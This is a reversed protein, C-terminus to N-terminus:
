CRGDAMRSWYGREACLYARRSGCGLTSKSQIPWVFLPLGVMVAALVALVFTSPEPVANTSGGGSQLLNILAQLDANNMKGDGNIDGLLLLQQPNLNSPTLGYLTEYNTFNTLALMMASIDATDVHGDRNFDGAYYTTAVSITGSTNLQSSDWVIRGGLTPLQVDSFNGFRSNWDLLDFSNGKAPRFDNVLSVALIGSESLTGTVNLKSNASPAAGGLQLAIGGQAFSSAELAVGAAITTTGSGSISGATSNANIVFSANNIVATGSLLAGISGIALTGASITTGGSYSNTGTFTETGSGTKVIALHAGMDDSISGSFTGGGGAIGLTAITQGGFAGFYGGTFIGSGTLADVQMTGTPGGEVADFTAGGAINLSAQNNAWIGQYSSTGTLTGGEVDILAGASFDVNITGQGGFVLIGAGTKRFTGTGTYTMTPQTLTGSDNYELVAGSSVSATSGPLALNPVQLDGGTVMTGGTYSNAASLVLTGPGAKTISSASSEAISGAITETNGMSVTFTTNGGMLFLAGGAASGNGGIGGVASGGGLGGTLSGADTTSDTFSVSAGNNSRVFVAGGLAAGGGGGGDNGHGGDGGDFGGNGGSSPGTFVEDPSGGGGGGGGGFGGFGGNGALSNNHPAPAGGNDGGGGGGGGFGGDGGRGSYNNMSSGGGGGGGFDGGQGGNGGQSVQYPSNDYTGGGGGGDPGNAPYGNNAGGDEGDPGAHGGNGGGGSGGSTATGSFGGSSHAGGGGGGGLLNNSDTGGNGGAFGMGGGGGGGGATSSQGNGGQASNSTFAVSTFSVAGANIFVAGGLGAGGGARSGGNGGQALGSTLTLNNIQVSQGPANIFFIRNQNQGSLTNGSDGNITLGVTIDPLQGVNITGLGDAFSITAGNGSLTRFQACM